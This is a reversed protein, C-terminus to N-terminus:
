LGGPGLCRVRLMERFSSYCRRAYRQVVARNQLDEEPLNLLHEHDFLVVPCDGDSLRQRLDFCLPGVDGQANDAFCVYGAPWLVSWGRTVALLNGLPNDSPLSPLDLCNMGLTFRATLYARFLPPFPGPLGSEAERVQEESVTSPLMKWAVWGDASVAGDVMDPPVGGDEPHYPPEKAPLVMAFGAFFRDL